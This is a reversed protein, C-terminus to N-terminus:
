VTLTRTEFGSGNRMRILMSREAPNAVFAAVTAFGFPPVADKADLWLNPCGAEERECLRGLMDSMTAPRNAFRNQLLTLRPRTDPLHQIGLDAAAFRPCRYHNTHLLSEGSFTEQDEGQTELGVVRTADALLFYGTGRGFRRLVSLAADLTSQRLALDVYLSLPLDVDLRTALHL